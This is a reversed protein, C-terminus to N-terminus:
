TQDPCSIDNQKLNGNAPNSTEAHGKSKPTSAKKNEPLWDNPQFKKKDM